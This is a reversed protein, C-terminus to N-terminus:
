TGDCPISTAVCQPNTNTGCNHNGSVCIYNCKGSVCKVTASPKSPCSYGCAGCNNVDTQKSVCSNGFKCYGSDCDFGCIGNICTRYGNTPAAPCVNGCAGCNSLDTQKSVCRSGVKCYDSNCEFGCIGSNCTRYGNTPSSNCKNGCTGCNNLDTQKSVCSTGYKCYGSNCEFGCIGSNCTRYGNTPASPCVNGCAGCNSTSTQKPDCGGNYKCYDNYCTYECRNNDCSRSDANAPLPCENSCRECHYINSGLAVCILGDRCYNTDCNECGNRQVRDDNVYGTNCSLECVGVESCERTRVTHTNEYVRCDYGNPGCHWETNAICADNYLMYNAECLRAVCKGAICDGEAWGPMADKCSLGAAGCEATSNEVCGNNERRYRPYCEFVCKGNKCSNEANEVSCVVGEKGCNNENELICSQGSQYYGNNCIFYCNGAICLNKANEVNCENKERGCNELTDPKCENSYLYYGVRCSEAACEGSHCATSLVGDNVNSYCSNKCRGCHEGDNKTDVCIVTNTRDRCIELPKLCEGSCVGSSCYLGTECEVNCAGCNSVDSKLNTECGNRLEGDCDAYGDRCKISYARESDGCDIGGNETDLLDINLDGLSEVCHGCFEDENEPCRKVICEYLLVDDESQESDDVITCSSGGLCRGVKASYNDYNGNANKEDRM